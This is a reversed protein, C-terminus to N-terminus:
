ECAIGDHDADLRYVDSGTVRATGSFYSPGDGSGGACDVDSDIPVCGDSYNTDCGAPQQEPGAAPPAAPPPPAVYTGITTVETVPERTVQETVLERGIEAGDLITVRYTLTREGDAGATTVSTEGRPRTSDEVTTKGFPIAETVVEERVSPTPTPTASPPATSTPASPATPVAAVNQARVPSGWLTAASVGGSVILVAAAAATIGIAVSRRRLRLWTPTGKALAVIGTVLIAAAAVAYLYSLPWLLLLAVVGVLVWAWVPMGRRAEDSRPTARLPEADVKGDRAVHETRERGNWWRSQGRKVPDPFRGAGRQTM